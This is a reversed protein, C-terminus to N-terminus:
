LGVSGCPAHGLRHSPGSPAKKKCTNSCLIRERSPVSESLTLEEGSVTPRHTTPRRGFKSQQGAFTLPIGQGAPAHRRPSSCSGIFSCASGTKQDSALSAPDAMTAATWSHSTQLYPPMRFQARRWLPGHRLLATFGAQEFDRDYALAETIGREEM